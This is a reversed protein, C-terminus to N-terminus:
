RVIHSRWNPLEGHVDDNDPVRFGYSERIAKWTAEYPPPVDSDFALAAPTGDALMTEHASDGPRNVPYPNKARNDYLRQQDERSRWVSTVTPTKGTRREMEAIAAAAYPRLSPHLTRLSFSM